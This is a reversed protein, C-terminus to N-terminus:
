IWEKANRTIMGSRVALAQRFVDGSVQPAFRAVAGCKERLPNPQIAEFTIWDGRVLTREENARVGKLYLAETARFAEATRYKGHCTATKFPSRM